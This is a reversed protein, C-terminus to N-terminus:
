LYTKGGSINQQIDKNLKQWPKLETEAANAEIAPNEPTAATAAPKNELMAKIDAMQTEMATIKEDRKAIEAKLEANAEAQATEEAKVQLERFANASLTVSGDEKESFTYTKGLIKIDMAFPTIPSFNPSLVSPTAKAGLEFARKVADEYTLIGDILGYEVAQQASYMKGTFIDPHEITAPRMKKITDHMAMTLPNLYNEKYLEYNGSYIAKGEDNKDPSLDSVIEHIKIGQAELYATNDRWTSTVGISGIRDMAFSAYIETAGSAICLAASACMGETFVLVPKKLQQSLFEATQIMMLAVGGGSTVRIFHASVYPLIDNRRMNRTLAVTDAEDWNYDGSTITGRVQYEAVGKEKLSELDYGYVKQYNVNTFYDGKPDPQTEKFDDVGKMAKAVQMLFVDKTDDSIAIASSLISYNKKM